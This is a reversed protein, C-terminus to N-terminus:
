RTAEERVARDKANWFAEGLTAPQYGSAAGTEVYRRVVKAQSEEVQPAPTAARKKRRKVM